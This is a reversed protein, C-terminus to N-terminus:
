LYFVRVSDDELAARTQKDFKFGQREFRSAFRMARLVRIPDDTYTEVPLKPTRLTKSRLDKLGMETPDRIALNQLRMYLANITLERERADKKLHAEGNVSRVNVFEMKMVLPFISLGVVELTEGNAFDYSFKYSGIRLGKEDNTQKEPRVKPNFLRPSIDYLGNIDIMAQVFESPKVNVLVVDMDPALKGLLKDRVWGGVAYASVRNKDERTENFYDETKRLYEIILKEKSNLFLARRLGEPRQDGSVTPPQAAIELDQEPSESNIPARTSTLFSWKHRQHTPRQADPVASVVDIRRRTSQLRIRLLRFSTRPLNILPRHLVSSSM